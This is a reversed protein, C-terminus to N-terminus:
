KLRALGAKLIGEKDSYGSEALKSLNDKDLDSIFPMAKLIFTDKNGYSFKKCLAIVNEVTPDTVLKMNNLLIDSRDSYAADSVSELQAKTLAPGRKLYTSFVTDKNGYELKSAFSLANVLTLDSVKSHYDLLIQTKESYAHPQILFVEATTIPNAKKLWAGVITDKNSYEVSKAFVIANEITFNSIKGYNNMKLTTRDSYANEAISILDATSIQKLAKVYSNAIDDKGSYTAANMMLVVNKANLDSIKAMYSHLVKNKDSYAAGSLKVVEQSTLSQAKTMYDTILTDKESYTTGDKALKVIEDTQVNPIRTWYKTVVENKNSYASQSLKLLEEGTVPGGRKLYNLILTDKNSYSSAEALTVVNAANLDTLKDLHNFRLSDRDSYAAGSLSLLEASTMKKAYRTMYSNAIEDKASYNVLAMFSTVSGPTLDEVKDMFPIFYQTKEYGLNALELLESSKISRLKNKIFYTLIVDKSGYNAKAALGKANESTLDSVKNVYMSRLDSSNSHSADAFEHLDAATFDPLTVLVHSLFTDKALNTLLGNVKLIDEKTGATYNKLIQAAFNSAESWAELGLMIEIGKGLDEQTELPGLGKVKAVAVDRAIYSNDTPMVRKMLLSSNDLTLDTVKPLAEVFIQNNFEGVEKMERLQTMLKNREEWKREEQAKKVLDHIDKPAYFCVDLILSLHAVDIQKAKKVLDLLKAHYRENPKALGRFETKVNEFDTTTLLDGYEHNRIEPPNVVPTTNAIPIYGDKIMGYKSAEDDNYPLGRTKSDYGAGSLKSNSLNAGELNVGRLNTFRLDAGNFDIGSLDLGALQAGKLQADKFELKKLKRASISTLDGCEGFFSPNFGIKNKKDLCLKSEDNFRFGKDNNGLLNAHLKLKKASAPIREATPTVPAFQACASLLLTVSMISAITSRKM